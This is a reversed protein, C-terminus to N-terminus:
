IDFYFRAPCIYISQSISGTTQIFAVQKGAPIEPLTPNWFGSDARTVGAGSFSWSAGVPNYQFSADSIQPTEFSGNSVGNVFASANASYIGLM